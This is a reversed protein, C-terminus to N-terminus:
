PSLSDLRDTVDGRKQGLKDWNEDRDRLIRVLERGLSARSAALTKDWIELIEGKLEISQAPLGTRSVRAEGAGEVRRQRRQRQRERDEERYRQPERRRRRRSMMRRRM